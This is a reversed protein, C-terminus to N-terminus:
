IATFLPMYYDVATPGEQIRIKLYKVAATEDVATTAVTSANPFKVIADQNITLASNLTGASNRVQFILAGSVSNTGITGSPDVVSIITAAAEPVGLSSGLGAFRFGGLTDGLATAAPIDATGRARLINAFPLSGAGSYNAITFIPSVTTSTSQSIITLGGLYDNPGGIAVPGDVNLDGSLSITGIGNITSGNLDLPAGLRPNPDDILLATGARWEGAIADYKLVDDAVPATALNIDTLDDLSQTVTTTIARTTPNFTFSIGTNTGTELWPGVYDLVDNEAVSANFTITSDDTRDITVNTGGAFVVDDTSTDSGFLRLVTGSLTTESSINYTTGVGEVSNIWNVGDYKLVEGTSPTGTIAVDTLDDLAGGGGGTSDTGNVWNTGNYKLVQGSTPTGTIVVDTLDDLAGGGGGTSDTGNVWNTGNYKLVQGSTPTGTIVVDALDNLDTAGGGGGGVSTGGATTGDGVYLAKTDTTYILEGQLPTLGLRQANTGRRLQFAM